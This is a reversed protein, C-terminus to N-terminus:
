GSKRPKQFSRYLDDFLAFGRELRQEDRPHAAILGEILQQIGAADARGYKRDKLDIDHVIEAIQRLARDKLDFAAVITEFTCRDGEHTYDGGVMDFAIDDDRKKWQDADVFRFRADADIFRRVLWASSIRDIKLGRRTVWTKGRVKRPARPAGSTSPRLRKELTRIMTEVEKGAPVRYFDIARIEDFRQRLRAAAAPLQEEPPVTGSRSRLREALERVEGALADYDGKRDARFQEELAKDTVGALFQGSCIYAQGGGGKIEEAIWEFDEVADPGAPLVYVSNKLAVAGIRALRQRVKARLYLPKPPIQHILVLWSRPV